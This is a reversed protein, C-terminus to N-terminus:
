FRFGFRRSVEVAFGEDAARELDIWRAVLRERNAGRPKPHWSKGLARDEAKARARFLRDLRGESQSGYALRNGRRSAFYGSVSGLVECRDGTRPCRFYYRLGGYPMARAEIAIWQRRPDGDAKFDLVVHRDNPDTLDATVNINGADDNTGSWTWRWNAWVRSGERVIGRRRLARIDLPLAQEMKGVNRTRYRGSNYGGMGSLNVSIRQNPASAAAM